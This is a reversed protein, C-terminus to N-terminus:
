RTRTAFIAELEEDSELEAAPAYDKKVAARASELARELLAQDLPDLKRRFKSNM